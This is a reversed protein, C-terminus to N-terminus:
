EQGFDDLLADKRRAERRMSAGKFPIRVLSSNIRDWASEGFWDQVSNAKGSASASVIALNSTMITLKNSAWRSNIITWVATKRTSTMQSSGAGVDDILLVDPRIAMKVPNKGTNRFSVDDMLESSQLYLASNAKGDLLLQRCIEVAVVTKGVGSSGHLLLFLSPSDLYDTLKKKSIKSIKEFDRGTLLDDLNYGKLAAPVSANWMRMENEEYERLRATIVDSMSM